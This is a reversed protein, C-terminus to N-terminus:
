EPTHPLPTVLQLTGPTMHRGYHPAGAPFCVVFRVDGRLTVVPTAWRDGRWPLYTFGRPGPEEPIGLFKIKTREYHHEGVDFSLHDGTNLLIPTDTGPAYYDVTGQEADRWLFRAM